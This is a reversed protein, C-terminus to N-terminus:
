VCDQQWKQLYFYIQVIIVVVRKYELLTSTTWSDGKLVRKPIKFELYTDLNCQMVCLSPDTNDRGIVAMCIVERSKDLANDFFYRVNHM